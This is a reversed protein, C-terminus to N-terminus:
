NRAIYRIAAASPQLRASGSPAAFVSLFRVAVTDSRWLDHRRNQVPRFDDVHDGGIRAYAIRATGVSCTQRAAPKRKPFPDRHRRDDISRVISFTPRRRCFEFRYVRVAHRYDRYLRCLHNTRRRSSSRREARSDACCQLPTRAGVFGIGYTREPCHVCADVTCRRWRSAPYSICRTEPTSRPRRAAGRSKSM